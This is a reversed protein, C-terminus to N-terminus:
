CLVSKFAMGKPHSSVYLLYCHLVFVLSYAPYAWQSLLKQQKSVDRAMENEWGLVVNSITNGDPKVISGKQFHHCVVFCCFILLIFVSFIVYCKSGLCWGITNSFGQLLGGHKPELWYNELTYCFTVQSAAKWCRRKQCGLSCYWWMSTIMSWFFRAYISPQWLGESFITLWFPYKSSVMTHWLYMMDILELANSFQKYSPFTANKWQLLCNGNIKLGKTEVNSWWPSPQVWFLQQM